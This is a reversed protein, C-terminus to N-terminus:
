QIIQLTFRGHWITCLNTMHNPLYHLQDSQCLKCEHLMITKQQTIDPLTSSIYHCNLSVQKMMLYFITTTALEESINTCTCIYWVVSHWM